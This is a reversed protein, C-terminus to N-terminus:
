YDKLTNHGVEEFVARIMADEFEQFNQATYFNNKGVCKKWDSTPDYKLAIFAIKGVAYPTTLTSRIKECLGSQLLKETIGENLIPWDRGDSVVVLVKRSASGKALVQAGELMGSSVLTRDSAAMNMIAKQLREPSSTLPVTQAQSEEPDASHFSLCILNPVKNIDIRIDNVQKPIANVTAPYDIYDYLYQIKNLDHSEFLYPPLPANLVFQPNCQNGKRTGWGFPVFAVKNDINYQALQRAIKVAIQKAVDIKWPRSQDGIEKDISQRMSGSFDVAFAVDINSRFKRAAGNDGIKVQKNFSPFLSSAFWSNQQVRSSLRYEVWALKHGQSASGRLVQIVPPEIHTAHNMYATLWRTALVRNRPSNKGNDEATLALAAQEMADSLRAQEMIYRSGELGLAAMSLLFAGLMALSVAFAGRRDNIFCRILKINYSYM